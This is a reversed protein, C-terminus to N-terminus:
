LKCISCSTSILRLLYIVVTATTKAAQADSIEQWVIRLDGGIVARFKTYRDTGVSIHLRDNHAADLFQDIVYLFVERQSPDDCVPLYMKNYREVNQTTWRNEVKVTRLDEPRFTPVLPLIGERLTVASLSTLTSM